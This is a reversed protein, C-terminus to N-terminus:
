LYLKDWKASQWRDDASDQNRLVLSIRDKAWQQGHDRVVDSPELQIMVHMNLSEETSMYQCEDCVDCSRYSEDDQCLPCPNISSFNSTNQNDMEDMGCEEMIDSMTLFINQEKESRLIEFDKHKM